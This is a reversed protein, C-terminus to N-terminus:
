REVMLAIGEGGGICLSAVGRKKDQDKMTQLLTVLVRAGSAGIPHGLVVAGGRVNVKAPDLGLIRNNAIAVVSFAENIEWLDVDKATVNQKTLLTNIADAPAITFEVPKRAAQAYGKIRGLITRGEAKAKEESMLVLAAAGDNISSANAATVTGDKKFVPKLGPIKDPKANKPGEDESVTTFEDPKKGPIQVPVIEAAFLGEKQAQIARRTSELAFEDQQARSIGQSTSCEEACNGMHVNGYVDWLGDSIMADKFEVNGMRSGGRMTHSIYPANSMSEMGGAVVVDADGLAISQAAAIVAKLGSGCVKNLTVAPVSEPLGAFITAQRAPAQGVGAQLVCGMIVEQVAEPKVGARELAAKIAIAGLQPATLKSLAGQFSGIPTRAAGVIVVERAM